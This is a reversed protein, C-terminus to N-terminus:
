AATGVVVRADLLSPQVRERVATFIRFGQRLGDVSRIHVDQHIGCAVARVVLRDNVLHSGAIGIQHHLARGPGM